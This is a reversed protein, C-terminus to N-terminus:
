TEKRIANCESRDPLHRVENAPEACRTGAANTACGTLRHLRPGRRRWVMVSRRMGDPGDNQIMNKRLTATRASAYMRWMIKLM